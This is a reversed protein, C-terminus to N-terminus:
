KAVEVKVEADKPVAYLRVHRRLDRTFGRTYTFLATAKKDVTKLDAALKDQGSGGWAFAVLKEKDFDVQKKIEDAAGGVVPSRAVDAAATFVMPETAKGGRPATVKLDKAPIERVAPKDAALAASAVGLAAIMVCTRM